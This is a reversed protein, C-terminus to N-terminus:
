CSIKDNHLCGSMRKGDEKERLYRKSHEFVGQSSPGNPGNSHTTGGNTPPVRWNPSFGDDPPLKCFKGPVASHANESFKFLNKSSKQQRRLAEQYQLRQKELITELRVSHMNVNNGNNFAAAVAAAASQGHYM